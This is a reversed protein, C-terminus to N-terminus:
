KGFEKIDENRTGRPMHSPERIISMLDLKQIKDIVVSNRNTIKNRERYYCTFVVLLYLAFFFSFIHTSMVIVRLIKEAAEPPISAEVMM